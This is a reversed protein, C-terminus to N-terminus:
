RSWPGAKEVVITAERLAVYGGPVPICREDAGPSGAEFEVHGNSRVKLMFGDSVRKVGVVPGHEPGTDPHPVEEVEYWVEDVLVVCYNMTPEVPDPPDIPVTVTAVAHASTVSGAANSVTVWVEASAELPPTTFTPADMGVPGGLGQVAWQYHLPATGTAVVSFTASEGQAVTVSQPQNTIVPPTIVDPVDHPDFPAELWQTRPIFGGGEGQASVTGDEAIGPFLQVESIFARYWKRTSKVFVSIGLWTHALVGVIYDGRERWDLLQLGDVILSNGGNRYIIEGEATVDLIGMAIGLTADFYPREEVYYGHQDFILHRGVVGTGAADLAVMYVHFKQDTQFRPCIPNNGQLLGLGMAGVSTRVFVNGDAHCDGYVWGGVPSVDVRPFLEGVQERRHEGASAVDCRVYAM